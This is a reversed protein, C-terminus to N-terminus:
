DREGLYGLDWNKANRPLVPEISRDSVRFYYAKRPRDYYPDFLRPLLIQTTAFPVDSTTSAIATGRKIEGMCTVGGPQVGFTLGGGTGCKTELNITRNTDNRFFGIVPLMERIRPGPTVELHHLIISFPDMGLHGKIRTDLIGTVRVHRANAYDYPDTKASSPLIYFIFIAVDNDIHKKKGSVYADEDRWAKLDRWVWMHGGGVDAVGNITVLKRDYRAPNKFLEVFTVDAALSGTITSLLIAYSLFHRSLRFSM